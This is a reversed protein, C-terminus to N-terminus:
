ALSIRQKKKEDETNASLFDIALLLCPQWQCASTDTAAVKAAPVLVRDLPQQSVPAESNCSAILLGTLLVGLVIFCSKLKLTAFLLFRM